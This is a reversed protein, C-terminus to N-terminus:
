KRYFQKNRAWVRFATTQRIRIQIRLCKYSVASDPLIDFCIAMLSLLFPLICHHPSTCPRNNPVFLSNESTDSTAGGLLKIKATARLQRNERERRRM